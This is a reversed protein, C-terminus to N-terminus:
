PYASTSVPGDLTHTTTGLNHHQPTAIATSCLPGSASSRTVTQGFIKALVTFFIYIQRTPTFYHFLSLCHNRILNEFTQSSDLHNNVKTIKDSHIHRHGIIREWQLRSAIFVAVMRIDCLGIM